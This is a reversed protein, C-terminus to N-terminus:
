TFIYSSESEHIKRKETVKSNEGKTIPNSAVFATIGPLLGFVSRKAATFCPPPLWSTQPRMLLKPVPFRRDETRVGNRSHATIASGEIKFECRM